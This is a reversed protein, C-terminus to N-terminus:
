QVWRFWLRYPAAYTFAEKPLDEPRPSVSQGNPAPISARGLTARQQYLHTAIITAAHKLPDPITVYGMVGVIKIVRNDTLSWAGHTAAQHLLVIGANGNQSEDRLVYDTAAVLESGDFEEETDDEISTVSLVPAVPVILRRGGPGRLFLTYTADELTPAAGVSSAPFGLWGALLADARAILATLLTDQGTSSLGPIWDRLEAPTLIAV